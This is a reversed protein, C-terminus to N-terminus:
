GAGSSSTSNTTRTPEGMKTIYFKGLSALEKKLSKGCKFRPLLQRRAHASRNFGKGFVTLGTGAAELLNPLFLSRGYVPAARCECDNDCCAATGCIGGSGEDHRVRLLSKFTPVYRGRLGDVDAGTFRTSPPVFSLKPVGHKWADLVNLTGRLQRAYIFVDPPLARM